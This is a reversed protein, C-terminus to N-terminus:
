EHIILQVRAIDMNERKRGPLPNIHWHESCDDEIPWDENGGGYTISTQGKLWYTLAIKAAHETRFLRPQDPGYPDVPETWTGGKDNRGQPLGLLFGSPKHRIAYFYHMM